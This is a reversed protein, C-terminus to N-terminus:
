ATRPWAPQWSPCDPPETRITRWVVPVCTSARALLMKRNIHGSLVFAIFGFYAICILSYVVVTGVM